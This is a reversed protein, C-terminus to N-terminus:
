SFQHIVLYIEMNWKEIRYTHFGVIEELQMHFM